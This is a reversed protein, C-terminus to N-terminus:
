RQEGGGLAADGGPTSLADGAEDGDGGDGCNMIRIDM